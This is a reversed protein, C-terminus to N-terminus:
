AYQLQLNVKCIPCFLTITMITGCQECFCHTNEIQEKIEKHRYAMWDKGMYFIAREAMLRKRTFPVVNIFKQM